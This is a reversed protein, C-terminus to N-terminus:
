GTPPAGRLDASDAIVDGLLGDVWRGLGAIEGDARDGLASRLKGREAEPDLAAEAVRGYYLAALESFAEQGLGHRRAWDM